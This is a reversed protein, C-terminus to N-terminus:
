RRAAAQLLLDAILIETGALGMPYSATLVAEPPDIPLDHLTRMRLLHETGALVFGRGSAEVQALSDTVIMAARQPVDLGMEKGAPSKYGVTHVIATPALWEAKIVPHLSTTALVVVDAGTVAEEASRAPAIAMRSSLAGCLAAASEASRGFVRASAIPRVAAIAELHARAQRGAGIVAITLARPPTTRRITAGGIAGMRLGSLASGLVIGRMAGTSVDWVIVAQDDSHKAHSTYYARVGAAGGQMRSGGITFVLDTAPAFAVRHRPASVYNAQNDIITEVAAIAAPMDALRNVEDDGIILM